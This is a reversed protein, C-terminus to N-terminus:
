PMIAEQGDRMAASAELAAERELLAEWQVTGVERYRGDRAIIVKGDSMPALDLVYRASEDLADVWADRTAPDIVIQLHGDAPGEPRTTPFTVAGVANGNADQLTIPSLVDHRPDCLQESAARLLLDVQQRWGMDEFSQTISPVDVVLLPKVDVAPSVVVAAVSEHLAPAPIWGDYKVRLISTIKEDRFEGHEKVTFKGEFWKTKADTEGFERPPNATKWSYKNGDADIFNVYYQTGYDSAFQFHGTVRMAQQMKQGVAGVHQSPHAARAELAMSKAVVRDMASISAAALALFKNECPMSEATVVQQAAREFESTPEFNTWWDIVSSACAMLRDRSEGYREILARKGRMEEGLEKALWYTPKLLDEKARKSSVFGGQWETVFMVDRLYDVPRVAHDGGVGGLFHESEDDMSRFAAYMQALFLVKSPDIGTFDELCSSGIQKTEGTEMHRVVYSDKRRRKTNCHECCSESQRYGDLQKLESEMDTAAFTIRGEGFPEMKGLVKWPGLSIIPYDLPIRNLYLIEDHERLEHDDSVPVVSMHKVYGDDDNDYRRAFRERKPEGATVLPLGYKVAKANLKSLAKKFAAMDETGAPVLVSSKLLALDTTV